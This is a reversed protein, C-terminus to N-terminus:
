EPMKAFLTCAYGHTYGNREGVYVGVGVHTYGEKIMNEYHSQSEVWEDFWFDASLADNCNPDDYRTTCLNEGALEDYAVPVDDQLVTLWSRDDPRRHAFTDSDFLEKSRIRAGEQLEEMFVLENLGIRAREANIKEIIQEEVASQFGAGDSPSEASLVQSMSSGNTEGDPATQVTSSQSQGSPDSLAATSSCATLLTLLALLVALKKM